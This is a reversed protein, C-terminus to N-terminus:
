KKTPKKQKQRRRRYCCFLAAMAWLFCFAVGKTKKCRLNHAGGVFCCFLTGYGCCFLLRLRITQQPRLGSGVFLLIIDASGIKNNDAIAGSTTKAAVGGYGVASLLLIREARINNQRSIKNNDAVGIVVFYLRWLGRCGV